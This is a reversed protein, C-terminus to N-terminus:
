VNGGDLDAMGLGWDRREGGWVLWCCCFFFLYFVRDVVGRVFYFDECMAVFFCFFDGM